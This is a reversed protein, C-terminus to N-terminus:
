IFFRSSWWFMDWSRKFILIRSCRAFQCVIRYAYLCFLSMLFYFYCRSCSFLKFEDKQYNVSKFVLIKCFEFNLEKFFSACKEWLQSAKWLGVQSWVDWTSHLMFSVLEINNPSRAWGAHVAQSCESSLWGASECVQRASGSLLSM